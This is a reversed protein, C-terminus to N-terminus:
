NGFVGTLMASDIVHPKALEAVKTKGAGEPVDLMNDLAFVKFFYRHKGISPCPGNYELKGFDNQAILSGEPHSNAPIATIKPNINYFIWHTFAGFTSDPDTVIILLSKTNNPVGSIYLDPNVNIGKCTFKIPIEKNNEFSGSTIKMTGTTKETTSFKKISSINIKGVDIGKVYLFWIFIGLGLITVLLMLFTLQKDMGFM